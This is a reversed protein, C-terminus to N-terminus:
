IEPSSFTYFSPFSSVFGLRNDSPARTGSRAGLQNMAFLSIQRCSHPPLIMTTREECEQSIIIDIIDIKKERVNDIGRM